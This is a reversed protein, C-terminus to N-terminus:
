NQERASEEITCWAVRGRNVNRRESYMALHTYRLPVQYLLVVVTVDDHCAIFQYMKCYFWLNQM